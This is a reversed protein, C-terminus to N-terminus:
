SADLSIFPKMSFAVLDPASAPMAEEVHRNAATGIGDLAVLLTLSLGLAMVVPGTPAGARHLSGLALRLPASRGKALVKALRSLGLGLAFYFVALVLATLLFGATLGPM